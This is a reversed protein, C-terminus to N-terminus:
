KSGIMRILSLFAGSKFGYVLAVAMVACVALWKFCGSRAKWLAIKDMRKDHKTKNKDEKRGERDKRKKWIM